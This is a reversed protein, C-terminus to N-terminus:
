EQSHVIEFEKSSPNMKIIYMKENLYKLSTCKTVWKSQLYIEGSEFLFTHDLYNKYYTCEARSLHPEKRTETQYIKKEDEPIVNNWMYDKLDEPYISDYNPFYDLNIIQIKFFDNKPNFIGIKPKTFYSYIGDSYLLKINTDFKLHKKNESWVSIFHDLNTEKVKDLNLGNSLSEQERFFRKTGCSLLTFVLLILIFSPPYQKKM